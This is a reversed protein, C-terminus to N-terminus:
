PTVMVTGDPQVIGSVITGSERNRVSVPEGIGAEQLPEGRMSILLAGRQFRVEVEQGPVVASAKRIFDPFILKGPMLTKVAVMGSVSAPDQIFGLDCNPCYTADVVSIANANITQGPYIVAKAVVAYDRGWASPMAALMFIAILQWPVFHRNAM